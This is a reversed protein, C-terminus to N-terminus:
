DAFPPSRGPSKDRPFTSRPDIDIGLLAQPDDLHASARYALMADWFSPGEGLLRQYEHYSVLVAVPRGRRTLEVPAGGEVEHVLSALRDRAEAISATKKPDNDRSTMPRVEQGDRHGYRVCRRRRPCSARDSRRRNSARPCPSTIPAAAM